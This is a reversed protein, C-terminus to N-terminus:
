PFQRLSQAVASVHGDSGAADKDLVLRVEAHVLAQALVDVVGPGLVLVGVRGDAGDDVITPVAPRGGDPSPDSDHGARVERVKPEAIATTGPVSCPIGVRRASNGM